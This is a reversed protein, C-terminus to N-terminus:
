PDARVSPNPYENCINTQHIITAKNVECCQLTLTPGLHCNRNMAWQKQKAKEEGLLASTVFDLDPGPDFMVLVYCWQWYGKGQLSQKQKCNKRYHMVTQDPSGRVDHYFQQYICPWNQSRCCKKQSRNVKGTFGNEGNIPQARPLSKTCIEKFAETTGQRPWLQVEVCSSSSSDCSAMTLNPQLVMDWLLSAINSAEKLIQFIKTYSAYATPYSLAPAHFVQSPLSWLLCKRKQIRQFCPTM